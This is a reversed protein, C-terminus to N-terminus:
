NRSIPRTAPDADALRREIETKEAELIRREKTHAQKLEETVEREREKLDAKYQEFPVGIHIDGAGKHQIVSGQGRHQIIDGSGTHTPSDQNIVGGNTATQNVVGGNTASISNNQVSLAVHVAWGGGAVAAILGILAVLIKRQDKKM